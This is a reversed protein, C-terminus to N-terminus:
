RFELLQFRITADDVVDPRERRTPVISPATTDEALVDIIRRPEPERGEVGRARTASPGRQAAASPAPTPVRTVETPVSVSLVAPQIATGGRRAERSAAREQRLAENERRLALNESNLRQNEVQLARLPNRVIVTPM